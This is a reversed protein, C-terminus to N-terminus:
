GYSEVLAETHLVPGLWVFDPYGGTIRMSNGPTALSEQLRLGTVNGAKCCTSKAFTNPLYSM